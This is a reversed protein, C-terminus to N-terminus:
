RTMFEPLLYCRGPQLRPLLRDSLDIEVRQAAGTNAAAQGLLGGLSFLSPPKGYRVVEADELGALERAEQWADELYGLRDVLKLEVAKEGSVVRGDAVGNKLTEAPIGRAKSVIAVFREYTEMVMGHVYDREEQTMERHGYFTDKFDGSRFVRMQLGAKDMLGGYGLTQVIVGISGTWTNPNAIIKRAGCAVYYGGSAAVSDMCVVVPKRENAQLVARYLIDSATVEGGPSDIRLVIAKVRPDELAQNLARKIESVMSEGRSLLDNSIVGTLDIQAVRPGKPNAKAAKQVLTQEFRDPERAVDPRDGFLMGSLLVNLTLSVALLALGAVGLCGLVRNNM